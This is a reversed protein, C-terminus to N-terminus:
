NEILQKAEGVIDAVRHQPMHLEELLKQNDVIDKVLVVGLELLRTKQTHNLTTLATIPILRAKEVIQRFSKESPYEWSLIHMDSCAGFAIADATIKTNTVLWPKTFGNKQKTDEFRAKTYMAVHVNTKTGPFNHFKAEVMIKEQDKTAIVDIEHTICSGRVINRVSTSFGESQMIHAIYDEFPYGTPGLDMIAQKLSYKASTYPKPSHRLYEKVHHYIVSTPIDDYLKDKVHSLVQDQLEMPIGARRISTILKEESYPESQGTAKIVHLM